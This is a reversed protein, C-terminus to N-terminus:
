QITHAKPLPLINNNEDLSVPPFCRDHLLGEILMRRQSAAPPDKLTSLFMGQRERQAPPQNTNPNQKGKFVPGFSRIKAGLASYRIQVKISFAV